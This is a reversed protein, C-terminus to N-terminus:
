TVFTFFLMLIVSLVVLYMVVRANDQVQGSELLKILGAVICVAVTVMILGALLRLDQNLAPAHIGSSTYFIQQQENTM